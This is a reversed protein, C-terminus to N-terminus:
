SRSVIGLGLGPREAYVSGYQGALRLWRGSVAVAIESDRPVFGMRVLASILRLTVEAKDAGETVTLVVSDLLADAVEARPQAGPLGEREAAEKLALAGSRVLNRVVGDPVTEIRRWGSTPPRGDRWLEDRPEPAADTEGDLWTLADAVTLVVDAEAAPDAHITRAVLVGFPLRVMAAVTGSAGAPSQRIRVLSAGDLDAARRLLPVLEALQSRDLESVTM